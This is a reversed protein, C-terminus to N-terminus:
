GYLSLLDAQKVRISRKTIRLLEVGNNNLLKYLTPRSIGLLTAADTLSLNSQSLMNQRKQEKIAESELRLQEKRKEAKKGRNACAPTCYKTTSESATFLNGCFKCVKPYEFNTTM